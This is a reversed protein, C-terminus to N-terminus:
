CSKAIINCYKFLFVINYIYFIINIYISLPKIRQGETKVPTLLVSSRREEWRPSEVAVLWWWSGAGM